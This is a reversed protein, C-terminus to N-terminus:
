IFFQGNNFQHYNIVQSRTQQIRLIAQCISVSFAKQNLSKQVKPRFNRKQKNQKSETM